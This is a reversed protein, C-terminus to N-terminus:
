WTQLHQRSTMPPTSVGLSCTASVFTTEPGNLGHVGLESCLVVQHLIEGVIDQCDMTLQEHSLSALTPGLNQIAPKDALPDQIDELNSPPSDELNTPPSNSAM